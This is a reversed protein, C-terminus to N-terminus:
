TRSVVTARGDLLYQNVDAGWLYRKRDDRLWYQANVDTRGGWTELDSTKREYTGTCIAFDVHVTSGVGLDAAPEPTAM